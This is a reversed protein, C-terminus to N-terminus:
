ITALHSDLLLSIGCPYLISKASLLALSRMCEPFWQDWCKCIGITGYSMEFVKFGTDSPNFYFKEQYGLGDAYMTLLPPPPPFLSLSLHLTFDRPPCPVFLIPQKKAPMLHLSITLHYMCFVGSALSCLHNM